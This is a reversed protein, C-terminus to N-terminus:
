VHGWNYGKVVERICSGTVHYLRGIEDVPVGMYNLLHIYQIGAATLKAKPHRDGTGVRLRGKAMKDNMNDLPTGLFLHAPNVCAPTDCRHCVLMGGSPAGYAIEYSLRHALVTARSNSRWIQGYGRVKSGAWLWCEGEERRDVKAWFRRQTGSDVNM